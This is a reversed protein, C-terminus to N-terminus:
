ILVSESIDCWVPIHVANNDAWVLANVAFIINTVFLWFAMAFLAVSQFRRLAPVSILVLFAGVFAGAPMAPYRM